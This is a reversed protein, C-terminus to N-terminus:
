DWGSNIWEELTPVTYDAILHLVDTCVALSSSLILPRYRLDLIFNLSPALKPVVDYRQFKKAFSRRLPLCGHKILFQASTLDNYLFGMQLAVLLPSAFATGNINVGKDYLTSVWSHHRHTIAVTLPTNDSISCHIDAKAELLRTILYDPPDKGALACTLPTWGRCTELNVQAKADLLYNAITYEEHMVALLLPTEQLENCVELNGQQDILWKATQWKKSPSLHAGILLMLATNGDSDWRDLCVGKQKLLKLIEIQGHIAARQTLTLDDQAQELDWRSANQLTHVDGVTAAVHLM